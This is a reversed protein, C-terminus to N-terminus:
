HFSGEVLEVYGRIHQLRKGPIATVPALLTELISAFTLLFAILAQSESSFCAVLLLGLVRYLFVSAVGKMNTAPDTAGEDTKLAM